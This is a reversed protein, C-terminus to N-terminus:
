EKFCHTLQASLSCLLDLELSLGIESAFGLGHDLRLLFTIQFLYFRHANAQLSPPLFPHCPETWGPRKAQQHHWFVLWDM